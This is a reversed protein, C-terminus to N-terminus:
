SGTREHARQCTLCLRATPYAQLRMRGIPENCQVCVGYTGLRIRALAADIDRVEQTERSIEALNVDVLVGAVAEGDTNHVQGALEAYSETDRRLLAARIQERVEGLRLRLQGALREVDKRSLGTDAPQASNM